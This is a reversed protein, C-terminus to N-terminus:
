YMMLSHSKWPNCPILITGGTKIGLGSVSSNTDCTISSKCFFSMFFTLNRSIPQPDPTILIESSDSNEPAVPHHRSM